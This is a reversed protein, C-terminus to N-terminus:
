EGIIECENYCIDFDTISTKESLLVELKENYYICYENYLNFVCELCFKEFLKNTKLEM